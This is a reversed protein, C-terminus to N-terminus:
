IFLLITCKIVKIHLPTCRERDSCVKPSNTKNTGGACFIFNINQKGLTLKLTIMNRGNLPWLLKTNEKIVIDEKEVYSNQQSFVSSFNLTNKNNWFINHVERTLVTCLRCTCHRCQRVLSSLLCYATYVVGLVQQINLVGANTWFIM